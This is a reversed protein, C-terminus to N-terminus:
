WDGGSTDYAMNVEGDGEWKTPFNWKSNWPIGCNNQNQVKQVGSNEDSNIKTSQLIQERWNTVHEQWNPDEGAM